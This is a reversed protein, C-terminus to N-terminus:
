EAGMGGGRYAQLQAVVFDAVPQKMGLPALAQRRINEIANGLGIRTEIDLIFGMPRRPQAGDHPQPAVEKAEIDGVDRARPIGAVDGGAHCLGLRADHQPGPGIGFEIQIATEAIVAVIRAAHDIRCGAGRRQGAGLARFQADAGARDGIQL